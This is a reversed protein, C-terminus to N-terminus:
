EGMKEVEAPSAPSIESSVPLAPPKTLAVPGVIPVAIRVSGAKFRV